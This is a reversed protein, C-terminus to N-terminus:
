EVEEPFVYPIEDLPDELPDERPANLPDNVASALSARAACADVGFEDALLSSLVHERVRDATRLNNEARSLLDEVRKSVNQIAKSSATPLKVLLMLTDPDESLAIYWESNYPGGDRLHEADLLQSVFYALRRPVEWRLVVGAFKPSESSVIVVEGFPFFPFSIM